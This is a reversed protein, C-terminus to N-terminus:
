HDEMSTRGCSLETTPLSSFSPPVAMPKLTDLLSTGMLLYPPVMFSKMINMMQIDKPGRLVATVM